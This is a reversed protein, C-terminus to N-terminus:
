EELEGESQKTTLETGIAQYLVDDLAFLIESTSYIQGAVEVPGYLEDIAQNFDEKPQPPAPPLKASITDNLIQEINPINYLVSMIWLACSRVIELVQKEPTGKAGGHYQENRQDHVWVIHSREVVWPLCRKTLEQELFDLKSHYNYLWKEVDVKQYTKNGRQIPNLSLYTTIAVEIANDFSILSIRRDFDDGQRLHEEAHVILEFPGQAWPPLARSM